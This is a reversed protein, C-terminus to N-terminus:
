EAAIAAIAELYEKRLAKWGALFETRLDHLKMDYAYEAARLAQETSHNEIEDAVPVVSPNKMRALNTM